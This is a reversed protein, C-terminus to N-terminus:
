AAWDDDRVKYPSAVKEEVISAKEGNSTAYTYLQGSEDAPVGPQYDRQGAEKIPM